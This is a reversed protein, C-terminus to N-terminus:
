RPLPVNLSRDALLSTIPKIRRCRFYTALIVMAALAGALTGPEPVPNSAPTTSAPAEFIAGPSASGITLSTGSPLSLVGDLVLEGSAVFTGGGFTNSGSLMLVAAPNNM